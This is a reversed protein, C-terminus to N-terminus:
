EENQTRPNIYETQRQRYLVHRCLPSSLDLKPHNFDEQPCHKLGIKEMVRRSASNATVTFSVIESLNLQTFGYHLVARAAETALGQNWYDSSLRWAIETAPLFPAQWDEGTRHILGVFGIMANTQKHQVAYLSYGYKVQHQQARHILQATENESQLAPFYEMVAPDQNIATMPALDEAQWTRLILRETELIQTM